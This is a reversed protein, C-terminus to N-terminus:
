REDADEKIYLYLFWFSWLIMLWLLRFFARDNNEAQAEACGCLLLLMYVFYRKNNM